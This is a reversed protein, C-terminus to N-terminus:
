PIEGMEEYPYLSELIRSEIPVKKGLYWALDTATIMGILNRDSDEVALHRVGNRAMMEAAEEISADMRVAVVPASMLATAPTKSATLDKACVQRTLDRETLIGVPRGSDSLVVASVRERDMTEAIEQINRNCDVVVLHRSAVTSVKTTSLLAYQCRVIKNGLRRCHIASHSM